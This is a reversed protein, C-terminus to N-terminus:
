NTVILAGGNPVKVGISVPVRIGSSAGVDHQIAFLGGRKRGAVSQVQEGRAGIQFM